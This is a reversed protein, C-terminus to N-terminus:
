VPLYQRNGNDPDFFIEMDGINFIAKDICTKQDAIGDHECYAPNNDVADSAPFSQAPRNTDPRKCRHEVAKGVIGQM